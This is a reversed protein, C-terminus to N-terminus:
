AITITGRNLVEYKQFSNIYGLSTIRSEPDRPTWATWAGEQFQRTRVDFTTSPPLWLDLHSVSAGLVNGSGRTEGSAKTVFTFPNGGPIQFEWQTQTTNKDALKNTIRTARYDTIRTDLSQADFGSQLIPFTAAAPGTIRPPHSGFILKQNDSFSGVAWAMDNDIVDVLNSNFPTYSKLFKPRIYRPRVGRSLARIEWDAFIAGTWIGLEAIFGDMQEDVDAESRLVGGVSINTLGTPDRATGSTRSISNKHADMAIAGISTSQSISFWHHWTGISLTFDLANAKLATRDTDATDRIAWRCLNPSGGGPDLLNCRM